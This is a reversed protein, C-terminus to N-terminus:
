RLLCWTGPTIDWGLPMCATMQSPQYPSQAPSAAVDANPAQKVWGYHRRARERCADAETANASNDCQGLAVGYIYNSSPISGSSCGTMALPTALLVLLAATTTSRSSM